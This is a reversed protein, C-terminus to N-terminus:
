LGHQSAAVCTHQHIIGHKAYFDKLFFEQANDFRIAKINTHSQTCIMTFFSILLSRTEQKSKMLYVWTSRTADDVITFFYRFGDHTAKAFPEQVDCHILDFANDSISSLASLPM